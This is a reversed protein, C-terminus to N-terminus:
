NNIERWSLRFLATNGDSRVTHLTQLFVQTGPRSGFGVATIRYRQQIDPDLHLDVHLDVRRDVHADAHAYASRHVGPKPAGLLEILYRPPQHPLSAAGYPFRHGSHRGYQAWPTSARADTNNWLPSDGTRCLGAHCRGSQEPFAQSRTSDRTLGQLALEADRLGAEAAQFAIQRDRDNRSSKENMLAMRAATTGLLMVVIMMIM